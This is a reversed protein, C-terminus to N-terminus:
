RRWISAVLASLVVLLLGLLSVLAIAEISGFKLIHPEVFSKAMCQVALHDMFVLLFAALQGCGV